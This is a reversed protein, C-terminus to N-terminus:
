AFNTVCLRPMGSTRTASDGLCARRQQQQILNYTVYGMDARAAVVCPGGIAGGVPHPM